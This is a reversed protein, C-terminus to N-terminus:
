GSVEGEGTKHLAAHLKLAVLLCASEWGDHFAREGIVAKARDLRYHLSARHIHLYSATASVNRGRELYAMVSEWHGASGAAILEAAAPSLAGVTAASLEWSRLMRWAGAREWEMAEVGTLLAVDAMFRARSVCTQPSVGDAARATGRCRIRVGASLAATLVEELVARTDAGDQPMEIALLSDYGEHVLFPRRQLPRHLATVLQQRLSTPADILLRHVTLQGQQPLAEARQARALSGEIGEVIGQALDRRQAVIAALPEDRKAILGALQAACEAAAELGAADLHPEDIIWMYGVLEGAHRIPICVRALMEYESNAPLRVPEVSDAIGFTMMWPVPEMTPARNLIALARRSDIPGYQASACVVNLSPTSIELSRHLQLALEDVIAQIRHLQPLAAEVNKSM